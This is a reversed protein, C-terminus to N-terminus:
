AAPRPVRRILPCTVLITTGRGPASVVQMRGGIALAREEMSVLGLADRQRTQPEFGGGDDRIEVTLVGEAAALTVVIEHANAHRLANTIAEQVIRYVAVEVDDGLRPIPTPVRTTVPTTTSMGAALSRVSDELGLDHLLMPRLERALLRLHEGLENLQRGVRALKQSAEPDTAHLRERVSEVMIGTGVLEQCVDDHLDFGLRRREEERVRVQRQALLRLQEKRQQLEDLSARLAEEANRRETIDFATLLLAPRGEHEIMGITLDVWRYGGQKTRLRYEVRAPPPEDRVRAGSTVLAARDDPHLLTGATLNGLEERDFSTLTTVAANAYRIVGDQVIVVGAPMSETFTRFMHESARLAEEARWRETVDEAQGLMHSPVGDSDRVLTRTVRAFVVHGDRHRLHLVSELADVEGSLLRRREVRAMELGDPHILADVPTGVLEAAGRGQMREFAANVQLIGGDLGVMIMGIPAQYFAIRFREESELLAQRSEALAHEAAEEQERRAIRIRLDHAVRAALAVGLAACGFFIVALDRLVAPDPTTISMWASAPLFIAALLALEVQWSWGFFIPTMLVLVPLVVSAVLVPALTLSAAVTWVLGLLALVGLTIVRVPLPDSIRAVVPLAPLVIALEAIAIALVAGGTLIGTADRTLEYSWLLSTALWVVAFLPLRAHILDREALRVRDPSPRPLSGM